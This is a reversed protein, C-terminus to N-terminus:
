QGQLPLQSTRGNDWTLLPTGGEVKQADESKNHLFWPLSAETSAPAYVRTQLQRFLDKHKTNNRWHHRVQEAM